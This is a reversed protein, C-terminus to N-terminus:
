EENVTQLGNATEYSNYKPIPQTNTPYQNIKQVM